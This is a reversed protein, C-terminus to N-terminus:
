RASRPVDGCGMVALFATEVASEAPGCAKKTAALPGITLKEGDVTYSRTTMAAPM